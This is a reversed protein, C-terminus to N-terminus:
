APTYTLKHVDWLCAAMQHQYDEAPASITWASAAINQILDHESYECFLAVLQLMKLGWESGVETEEEESFADLVIGVFLNFVIMASWLTYAYFYIYM